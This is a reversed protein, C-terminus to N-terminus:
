ARGATPLGRGGGPHRLVPLLNAVLLGALTLYLVLSGGGVDDNHILPVLLLGVGSIPATLFITRGRLWDGDWLVWAYATALALLWVAFVRGALPAL